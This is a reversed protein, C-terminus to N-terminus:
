SVAFFIFCVVIVDARIVRIAKLMSELGSRASISNRVPLRLFTWAAAAVCPLSYKTSKVAAHHEGQLIISSYM